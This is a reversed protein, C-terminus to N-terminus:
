CLTYTLCRVDKVGLTSWDADDQIICLVSNDLQVTCIYWSYLCEVLCNVKLIGGKVMIKQREPPVGTLTYLQTKFVIPPQTTDIEVGPFVEKQWKV